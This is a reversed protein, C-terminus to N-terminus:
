STFITAAGGEGPKYAYHIRPLARYKEYLDGAMDDLARQEAEVSVGAPPTAGRASAALRSPVLHAVNEPMHLYPHYAYYKMTEQWQQEVPVMVADREAFSCLVFILTNLAIIVYSIWAHRQIIADDRGIPLLIM